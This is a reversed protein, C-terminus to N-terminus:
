GPQLQVSLAQTLLTAAQICMTRDNDNTLDSNQLLQIYDDSFDQMELLNDLAETLKQVNATEIQILSDKRSMIKVADAVTSLKKEYLGLRNDIKSIEEVAKDLMNMLQVAGKESAMVTEVNAVDLDTLRQQLMDVFREADKIAFDYESMLDT